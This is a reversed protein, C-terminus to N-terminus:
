GSLKITEPLYTVVEPFIAIFMTFLAMIIFFPLTAKSIAGIREGTLGQIVFLNFGIPPTIQAMEVVLVLFVGFWIKDYGAQLILPLTIPLTMVITSMGEMICGLFMYFILLVAILALPSLSMAAIKNALLTPIGLLAMAQSLFVAGIVILGVMSSTRAASMLASKLGKWTMSRQIISIICSGLVGVAAAETPSAYGGYMSFIILFMLFAVPLLQGLSQLREKITFDTKEKPCVSKDFLSYGIIYLSYLGAIILGPIVGAIFLKLISEEALVGYIIMMTSPPILFGLTGAGALSGMSLQKKYGRGQLENLTVRGITATTAASSGSVSAFLTCGLINVHTLRGPLKIVWPTLGTFISQAVKTRFLIEAMLIFLPLAIMTEGTSTNWVSYGVQKLLPVSHFISLGAAGAGTLALSVWVSGGLLLALILVTLYITAM